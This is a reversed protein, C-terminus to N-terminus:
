KEDAFEKLKNQYKRMALECTNVAEDYVHPSPSCARCARLTILKHHYEEIVRVVDALEEREDDTM